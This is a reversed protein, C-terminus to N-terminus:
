LRNLEWAARLVSLGSAQTEVTRGRGRDNIGDAASMRASQGTDHRISRASSVIQSEEEPQISLESWSDSDLIRKGNRYDVAGLSLEVPDMHARLDGWFSGFRGKSDRNRMAGRANFDAWVGYALCSQRHLSVLDHEAFRQNLPKCFQVLHDFFIGKFTQSDQSCEGKHDCYDELIGSRGLGQWSIDKAVITAEDSGRWGTANMVNRVQRHGDELYRVEGTAEWLGRLGSLIVGQNYTFVMENREDCKGTGTRNNRSWDTIHFGDVYLGLDNKMNSNYLWECGAIAANLYRKDHPRARYAGLAEVSDTMYPSRNDDGPFHLYMGISASIFLQNTIANKYPVLHPNWTMGGGCLKTDWGKSALDYFVRARHSFAAIYQSGHWACGNGLRVKRLDSYENLFKVSELWGLVVWLMDDYAENRINFANEAFYFAANHAFYLNIQDEIQTIESQDLTSAGWVHHLYGSFTTLTSTVITNVVAATWDIATPWAGIWIEFYEDQM